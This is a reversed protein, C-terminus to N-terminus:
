AGDEGEPEIVFVMGQGEDFCDITVREIDDVTEPCLVVVEYEPHRLLIGALDRAKM